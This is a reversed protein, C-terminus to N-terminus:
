SRGGGLLIEAQPLDEPRTIKLNPESRSVVRVPRGIREVAATDDTVIEGAERLSTLADVIWDRRFGQPTQVAMLSAREPTRLVTGSSDVEKITDVVPSGCVAAGQEWAAQAVAEVLASTVLPRAGDHILVADASPDTKEVGAWVSDQREKGGSVIAKVKAFFQERCLQRFEEIRDERAVVIVEQVCATMEFTRLCHAVVPLGALPLWLKDTGMRRSSGAAVVVVSVNM